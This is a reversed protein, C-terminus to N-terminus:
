NNNQITKYIKNLYISTYIKSSIRFLFYIHRKLKNFREGYGFNDISRVFSLNGANHVIPIIEDKENFFIGRKIKFKEASVLPIFNFKNELEIFGKEYLFLNILFQDPGFTNKELINNEVFECLEIFENKPAIIFGANIMPNKKLLNIIKIKLEKKIPNNIMLYKYFPNKLKETIIRFNKNEKLFLHTIDEQFIIDGSDCFIIQQYSNKKLFRKTDSFRQNVIHGEPKCPIVKIGKSKLNKVYEKSLGYDLVIINILKTNINNLLSKLWHNLLFKEYKANCATIIAYKKM